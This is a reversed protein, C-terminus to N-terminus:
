LQGYGILDRRIGHAGATAGVPASVGLSKWSDTQRNLIEIDAPVIMRDVDGDDLVVCFEVVAHRLM